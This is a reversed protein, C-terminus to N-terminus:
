GVTSRVPVILPRGTAASVRTLEPAHGAHQTPQLAVPVVPLRRGLEWRMSEALTLLFM